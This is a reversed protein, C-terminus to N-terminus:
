FRVIEDILNALIYPFRIEFVTYQPLRERFYLEIHEKTKSLNMDM